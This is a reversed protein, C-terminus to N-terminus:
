LRTSRQPAYLIAADDVGVAIGLKLQLYLLAATVVIAAAFFAAARLGPLANFQFAPSERRIYTERMDYLM